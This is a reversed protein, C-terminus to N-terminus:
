KWIERYEELDILSFGWFFTSVKRKFVGFGIYSGRELISFLYLVSFGLGREITKLDGWTSTRTPFMVVSMSFLLIFSFLFLFFFLGIIANFRHFFLYTLYAQFGGSLCLFISIVSM